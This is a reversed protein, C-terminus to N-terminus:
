YSRQKQSLEEIYQFPNQRYREFNNAVSEKSWPDNAADPTQQTFYEKTEMRDTKSIDPFRRAAGARRAM